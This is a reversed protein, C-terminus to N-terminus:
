FFFKLFVFSLFVFFFSLFIQTPVLAVGKAGLPTASVVGMSGLEMFVQCFFFFVQQSRKKKKGTQRRPAVVMVAVV